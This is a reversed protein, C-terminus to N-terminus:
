WLSTFPSCGLFMLDIVIQLFFNACCKFTDDIFIDSVENCLCQLNGTRHDNHLMFPEEKNTIIKMTNGNPRCDPSKPLKPFFFDTLGCRVQIKQNTQNSEKCGMLLRKTIYPRAKRPQVLVLSPNINKSLSVICHRRHPEFRRGKLKSNLVRGSVVLGCRERRM